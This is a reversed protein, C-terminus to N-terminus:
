QAAAFKREKSVMSLTTMISTWTSVLQFTFSSFAKAKPPIMRLSRRTSKASGSLRTLDWATGDRKKFVIKTDQIWSGCDISLRLDTRDMFLSCTTSLMLFIRLM